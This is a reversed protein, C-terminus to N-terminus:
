NELRPRGVEWVADVGSGEPEAGCGAVCESELDVQTSLAGVPVPIGWVNVLKGMFLSADLALQAGSLAVPMAGLVWSAASLSIGTGAMRAVLWLLGATLGGAGAAGAAAAAAVGNTLAAAMRNPAVKEGSRVALVLDLFQAGALGLLLFAVAVGGWPGLKVMAGSAALATGLVLEVVGEAAVLPFVVSNLFAIERATYHAFIGQAQWFEYRRVPDRLNEMAEPRLHGIAASLDRVGRVLLDWRSVAMGLLSLMTGGVRPETFGGGTQVTRVHSAWLEGYISRTAGYSYERVKPVLFSRGVVQGGESQWVAMQVDGNVTRIVQTVEGDIGVRGQAALAAARGAQLCLLGACLALAVLSRM